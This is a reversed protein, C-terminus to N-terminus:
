EAEEMSIIFHTQKTELTLPIPVENDWDPDSVLFGAKTDSDITVDIRTSIGQEEIDRKVHLYVQEDYLGAHNCKHIRPTIGILRKGHQELVNSIVIFGIKYLKQTKTDNHLSMLGDCLEKYEGDTLKQKVAEVKAMLDHTSSM